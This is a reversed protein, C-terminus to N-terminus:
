SMTLHSPDNTLHHRNSLLTRGKWYMGKVLFKAASCQVTAGTM